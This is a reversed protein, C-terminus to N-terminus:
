LSLPRPQWVIFSMLRYLLLEIVKNKAFIKAMSGKEGALRRLYKRKLISIKHAERPHSGNRLSPLM